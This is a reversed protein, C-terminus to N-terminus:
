WQHTCEKQVTTLHCPYSELNDEYCSCYTAYGALIDTAENRWPMYLMLKSRYLKEGEKERNFKHFRIIAERSRKHMTGLGYKLYIHTSQKGLDEEDPTDIPLTDDAQEDEDGVVYM